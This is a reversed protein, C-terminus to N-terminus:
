KIEATVRYIKTDISLQMDLEWGLIKILNKPIVTEYGTLIKINVAERRVKPKAIILMNIKNPNIQLKMLNYYHILVKFYRSIFLNTEDPDKFSVLSNLKEVFNVVTHEEETYKTKTKM